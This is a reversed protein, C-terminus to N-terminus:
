VAGTVELQGAMWELLNSPDALVSKLEASWIYSTVLKLLSPVLPLVGLAFEKISGSHISGSGYVRIYEVRKNVVRATENDEASDSSSGSPSLAHVKLELYQLQPMRALIAYVSRMNISCLIELRKVSSWAIADPLTPLDYISASLRVSRVSSPSALLKSIGKQYPEIWRGGESTLDPEPFLSHRYTASQPFLSHRYTIGVALQEVNALMCPPIHSQYHQPTSIDLSVLPCAEFLKYFSGDYFPYNAIRLKELVPFHVHRAVNRCSSEFQSTGGLSLDDNHYAKKISYYKFELVLERLSAFWIDNGDNSDFWGWTIDPSVEILKLYKLSPAFIKPTLEVEQAGMALTLHTLRHPLPAHLTFVALCLALNLKLVKASYRNILEALLDYSCMHRDNHGCAYISQTYEIYSLAPLHEQLYDVTQQATPLANRFKGERKNIRGRLNTFAIKKAEPWSGQGIGVADLASILNANDISQQTTINIEQVYSLFESAIHTNAHLIKITGKVSISAKRYLYPLICERWSHCAQSVSAMDNFNEPTGHLMYKQSTITFVRRLIDYTLDNFGM